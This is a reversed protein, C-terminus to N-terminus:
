PKSALKGIGEVGAGCSIVDDLYCFSDVIELSDEGVELKWPVVVVGTMTVSM